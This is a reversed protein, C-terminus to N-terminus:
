TTSKRRANRCMERPLSTILTQLTRGLRTVFFHDENNARCHGPHSLASVDIRVLSSFSRAARRCGRPGDTSTPATM